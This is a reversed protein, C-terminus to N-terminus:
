PRSRAQCRRVYDVAGSRAALGPVDLDLVHAVALATYCGRV